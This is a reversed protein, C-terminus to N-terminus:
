TWDAFSLFDHDPDDQLDRRRCSPRPPRAHLTRLDRPQAVAPASISDSTTRFATTPWMGGRLRRAKGHSQYGYTSGHHYRTGAINQQARAHGDDPPGAPLAVRQEHAGPQQEGACPRPRSPSRGDEPGRRFPAPSPRTGGSTPSAAAGRPSTTRSSSRRGPTPAPSPPARRSARPRGPSAPSSRRRGSARGAASAPPRYEIWMARVGDVVVERGRREHRELDPGAHAMAHQYPPDIRLEDV